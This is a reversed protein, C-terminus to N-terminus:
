VTVVTQVQKQPIEKSLFTFTETDYNNQTLMEKFKKELEGDKNSKYGERECWADDIQVTINGHSDFKHAVIPIGLSLCAGKMLNWKTMQVFGPLGGKRETPKGPKIFGPDKGKKLEIPDLSTGLEAPDNKPSQSGVKKKAEYLKLFQKLKM